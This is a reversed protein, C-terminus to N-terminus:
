RGSRTLRRWIWSAPVRHGSRVYQSASDITLTDLLARQDWPHGALLIEDGPQLVEDDAPGLTAQGDRQILLPVIDLRQERDDPHRLLDGLTAQGDRLWRHLAPAESADLTTRWLWPLRHGCRQQLRDVMTRAWEDGLAPMERLFRWLLPTSLQAYIEHAVVEAPVLLSDIRMAAFLPATEPRNQRSVVFLDPNIHRAAAVLSLNTTDNETGAVFGVAGVLDAAAMVHPESGDGAIVWPEDGTEARLDIATVTLGEAHLDETLERGFRGYGCLVWRGARPPQAREPLEAGPGSELWTMLQYSAPARLALRLHDGYRDFPNVVTPSGFAAMRHEVAPSVVRAIVPLEPRVLAATMTVALNVEDDDTLALVGECYPHGLGAHEMTQPNRADGALGPVDSRYADIDLADVREADTDIVVLRRGLADLERGLLRGTQGYGAILLFPERLRAVTRTFRQLALAQRFARDQLLTLLSGIAYAWGIVTLYITATVWLRQGGTFAHPIEGYGITTATYSMFYFADFFGMRAPQGADDQGPILTLGLVSVAFITILVILPARMRRLILFVTPPGQVAVAIRTWRRAERPREEDRGPLWWRKPGPM